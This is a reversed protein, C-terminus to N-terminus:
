LPWAKIQTLCERCAPAQQPCRVQQNRTMLLDMEDILVVTVGRRRAAQGGGGGGGGFLEELHTLATGPSLYQGTLAQM